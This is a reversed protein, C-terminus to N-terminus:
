TFCLMYFCLSELSLALTEFILTLYTELYQDVELICNLAVPKGTQKLANLTIWSVCLSCLYGHVVCDYLSWQSHPIQFSLHLM